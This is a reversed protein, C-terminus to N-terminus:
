TASTATIEHASGLPGPGRGEDLWNRSRRALQNMEPGGLGAFAWEGTERLSRMLAAGM